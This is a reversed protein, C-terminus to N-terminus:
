CGCLKCYINVFSSCFVCSSSFGTFLDLYTASLYVGYICGPSSLTPCSVLNCFFTNMFINLRTKQPAVFLYSQGILHCIWSCVVRQLLGVGLLKQSSLETPLSLAYYIRVRVGFFFGVGFQTLAVIVSCLGVSGFPIAWIFRCSLLAQVFLVIQKRFFFFITTAGQIFWMNM